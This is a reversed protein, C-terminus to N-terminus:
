DSQIIGRDVKEDSVIQGDALRVIRDSYERAYTEDHTVLLVTIGLSRNKGRLLRLVSAANTSDLNGTPEDTLLLKPNGVLARAVAVRQQEGGSLESPKHNARELLGVKSLAELAMERRKSRSVGALILPLSVNVLASKQSLLNFHQFVIGIVDRRYEALQSKSMRAIDTRDVEISGRSPRDLGAVLNLLTSKGSGSTGVLAVFEGRRVEFDVGRLAPVSGQGAFYTKELGSTKLIVEAHSM